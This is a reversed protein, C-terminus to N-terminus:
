KFNNNELHELINGTITKAHNLIPSKILSTLQKKEDLSLINLKSLVTSVASPLARENGDSVKFVGVIKNKLHGFLFVGEAGGKCFIKKNCIKILYSDFNKSGGIFSPNILINNILLQVEKQYKYKANYSNILNLLALSLNKIKLAYQPASCGDIGFYSKYINTQSFFELTNRINIQHPHDFSLYNKTTFNNSLCASLMALHKGSCNNYLQNPKKKSLLLKKSSQSDLPHHIGCNLSSIPISLKKLWNNLEKIHFKEGCHSSCALAIQKSNLNYKSFANSLAFPIAQFIKIASRPFIADEDNNTSLLIKNQKDIILCKIEHISEIKNGRTFFTSIKTM